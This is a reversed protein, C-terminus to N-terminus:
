RRESLFRGIRGMAEQIRELSQAYSFRLYGEANRGFDVGPTVGVHARELIEFAFALSDSTFRRANALVYFAGTPERAIGFGLKKLGQVMFKRRDNFVARM